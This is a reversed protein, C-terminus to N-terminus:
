FLKETYMIIEECLQLPIISREYDGNLGQTGTKSGRPAREHHCKPNNNHCKPRPHWGNPNYTQVTVTSYLTFTIDGPASFM